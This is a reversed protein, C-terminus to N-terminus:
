RLTVADVIRESLIGARDAAEAVFESSAAEFLYFCTEDVPIFITRVYRVYRGEATIADAAEAVRISEAGLEASTARAAYLEALYTHPQSATM